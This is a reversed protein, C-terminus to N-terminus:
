HGEKHIRDLRKGALQSANSDPFNTRLYQLITKAQSFQKLEYYTYGLRLMADPVKKSSPYNNLVNELEAISGEFDRTIYHAEGLWYQANGAFSSSPHQALFKRFGSIADEYRGEKLKDFAVQYSAEEERLTASPTQAVSVTTSPTTALGSVATTTASNEIDRLRRDLDLYLERQQKKIGNIDNGQVEIEGRLLGVAEAIDDIQRNMGMKASNEVMRGLRSMDESLKQLQELASSLRAETRQSMESLREVELTLQGPTLAGQALVPVPAFGSLVAVAWALDRVSRFALGM